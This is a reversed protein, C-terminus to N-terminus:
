QKHSSDTIMEDVTNSEDQNKDPLPNATLICWLDHTNVLIKNKTGIRAKRCLTRRLVCEELLNRGVSRARLDDTFDLSLEQKDYLKGSQEMERIKRVSRLAEAVNNLRVHLSSRYSSRQKKLLHYAIPLLDNLFDRYSACNSQAIEPLRLVVQNALTAKNTPFHLKLFANIEQLSFQAVCSLAGLIDDEVMVDQLLMSKRTREYLEALQTFRGKELLAACSALARVHHDACIEILFKAHLVPHNFAGEGELQWVASTLRVIREGTISLGLRQRGAPKYFDASLPLEFWSPVPMTGEHAHQGPRKKLTQVFHKPEGRRAILWEEVRKQASNLAHLLLEAIDQFSQLWSFFASLLEDSDRSQLLLIHLNAIAGPFANICISLDLEPPCTEPALIAAFRPGNQEVKLLADDEPLWPSVHADDDGQEEEEIVKLAQRIAQAMICISERDTAAKAPGSIDVATFELKNVLELKETSLRKDVDSHESLTMRAAILIAIENRIAVLRAQDDRAEPETTNLGYTECISGDLQELWQKAAEEVAERTATGFSPLHWEEGPVGLPRKWGASVDVALSHLNVNFNGGFKVMLGRAVMECRQTLKVVAYAENEQILLLGSARWKDGGQRLEDAFVKGDYSCQIYMKGNKVTLNQNRCARCLWRPREMIVKCGKCRFDPPTNLAYYVGGNSPRVLDVGESCRCLRAFMDAISEGLVRTKHAHENTDADIEMCLNLSSRSPAPQVSLTAQKHSGEPRGRTTVAPKGLCASTTANCVCMCAVMFPSQFACLM